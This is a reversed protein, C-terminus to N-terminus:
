NLSKPSAKREPFSDKEGGEGVGLTSGLSERKAKLSVKIKLLVSAKDEASEKLSTTM